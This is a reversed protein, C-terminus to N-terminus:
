TEMLSRAWLNFDNLSFFINDTYKKILKKDLGFIKKKNNLIGIVKMNKDILEKVIFGYGIIDQLNKNSIFIAHKNFFNDTVIYTGYKTKLMKKGEPKLKNELLIKSVRNEIEDFEIKIQSKSSSYFRKRNILLENLLKLLYNEDKVCRALLFEQRIEAFKPIDILIPLIDHELLWHFAESPFYEQKNTYKKSYWTTVIFKYNKLAKIKEYIKSIEYFIMAKKKRFGLVEEIVYNNYVFDLCFNSIIKHASFEISNKINLEKIYLERKNLPTKEAGKLGINKFYDKGYNSLFTNVRKKKVNVSNSLIKKLSESRQRQISSYLKPNRIRMEQHWKKFGNM